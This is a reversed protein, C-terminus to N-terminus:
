AKVRRDLAWREAGKWLVLAVSDDRQTGIERAVHPVVPAVDPLQEQRRAGFM